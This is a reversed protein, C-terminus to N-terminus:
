GCFNKERSIYFSWQNPQRFKRVKFNYVKQFVVFKFQKVSLNILELYSYLCLSKRIKCNKTKKVFTEALHFTLFHFECFPKESSLDPKRFNAFTKKKLFWFSGYLKFHFFTVFKVKNRNISMNSINISINTVFKIKNRNISMNSINISINTVFKVKNRNISM